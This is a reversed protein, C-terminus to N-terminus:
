ISTSRVPLGARTVGVPNDDTSYQAIFAQQLQQRMPDSVAALAQTMAPPPSAVEPPCRPALLLPTTHRAPGGAPSSSSSGDARSGAAAAAPSQGVTAAEADEVSGGEVTRSASTPASDRPQPAVGGGTAAAAATGRAPTSKNAGKRVPTSYPQQQQQQTHPGAATSNAAAVTAANLLAVLQQLGPCCISWYSGDVLCSGAALVRSLDGAGAGWGEHVAAAAAASAGAPGQVLKCAQICCGVCVPLAGFGASTPSLAPLSRLAHLTDVAAQASPSAAASPNFESLRMCSVAFPVALAVRWATDLDGPDNRQHQQQQPSGATICGRLLRQLLTAVDLLPQQQLLPGEGSSRGVPAEPAAAAAGAAFCLYSCYCGLAVVASAQQGLGSAATFSGPSSGLLKEVRGCLVGLLVGNFSSSDAAHLLLLLVHQSAPLAQLMRLMVHAPGSGHQPLLAAGAAAAAAPGQNSTTSGWAAAQLKPPASSSGSAAAAASRTGKGAAVTALAAQRQQLSTSNQAPTGGPGRGSLISSNTSGSSPGAAAAAQLLAGQPPAASLGNAAAVPVVQLRRSTSSSSLANAPTPEPLAALPSETAAAFLPSLCSAHLPSDVAGAAAFLVPSAAALHGTRSIAAGSLRQSSQQQASSGEQQQQQSHNPCAAPQPIIHRQPVLRKPASSSSSANTLGQSYVGCGGATALIHPPQQQQQKAPRTRTCGQMVQALSEGSAPTGSSQLGRGASRAVAVGQQQQSGQKTMLQQKSAAGPGTRALHSSSTSTSSSGAQGGAAAPSAADVGGAPRDALRQQLKQFRGPDKEAMLLLAPELLAEGTSASQLVCAMFLEALYTMNAPALQLLLQKAAVGVEGLLEAMDAAAAAEAAVAQQACGGAAAAAAEQAQRMGQLRSSARRLISFFLDRSKERNCVAATKAAKGGAPLQGASAPRPLGSGPTTPMLLGLGSLRASAPTRGSSSPLSRTSEPVWGAGASGASGPGGAAAWGLVAPRGLAGSAAAPAPTVECVGVCGQQQQWPTAATALSAAAAAGPTAPTVGAAAALSKTLLASLGPNYQQLHPSHTLAQQLEPPMCVLLKSCCELAKAAYSAACGRCSLLQQPGRPDDSQCPAQQQEAAQGTASSNDAQKNRSTPKGTSARNSSRESGAAASINSTDLPGATLLLLLQQLQEALNPPALHSLLHGHLKALRSAPQSLSCSYGGCNAGVVDIRRVGQQRTPLKGNSHQKPTTNTDAIRLAVAYAQGGAAADACSTNTLGAAHTCVETVAQLVCQQMDQPLVHGAQLQVHQLCQREQAYQSLTLGQLLCV